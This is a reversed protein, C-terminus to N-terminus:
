EIAACGNQCQFRSRCVDTNHNTCCLLYLSPRAPSDDRTDDVEFPTPASRQKGKKAKQPNPEPSTTAALVATVALSATKGTRPM